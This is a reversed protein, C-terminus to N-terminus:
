LLSGKHKPSAQSIKKKKSTDLQALDQNRRTPEEAKM